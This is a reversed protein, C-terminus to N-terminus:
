ESKGPAGPTLMIDDRVYVVGPQRIMRQLEQDTLGDKIEATVRKGVLLKSNLSDILSTIHIYTKAPADGLIVIVQDERVIVAKVEPLAAIKKTFNSIKRRKRNHLFKYGLFIWFVPGILSGWQVRTFLLAVAAILVAVAIILGTTGLPIWTKVEDLWGRIRVGVPLSLSTGTEINQKLRRLDEALGRADPYRDEPRKRLCRSIILHVQPPLNRRITTVPKAEEFVIAHMTDLPTERKFPLEGTVMEYLVVGLSFLDSRQDLPRGRAQEPSMYNTTGMVTGAITHVRERTLTRSVEVGLDTETLDPGLLKALGFDLLKAHGDRTVMINDSKIDRHIIQADHARALGEAIQLGIAVSGLLDLEGEAILQSVTRGEVFEMAIFMSGGAEDIDYVQAIAPHTVAAASQAEVLFRSKRGPDAILEPKLLKLAVPRQLKTDRARYVVGMGGMGLLEEVQYHKLTQGIM